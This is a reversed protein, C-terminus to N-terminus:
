RFLGNTFMLAILKLIERFYKCFFFQKYFLNVSFFLHLFRERKLWSLYNWSFDKFFKLNIFLNIHCPWLVCILCKWLATGGEGGVAGEKLREWWTSFCLKSGINFNKFFSMKGLHYPIQHATSSYMLVVWNSLSTTSYEKLATIQM